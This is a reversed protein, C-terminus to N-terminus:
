IDKLQPKVRNFFLQFDSNRDSRALGPFGCNEFCIRLYNILTTENPENLFNSDVSPKKTLELAYPQGGSVNDKHLDDASLELFACGFNEDDVYQQIDEKWYEHSIEEWVSDLSAVQIPDAMEWMCEKDAEFDWVFNVGGVIRYFYQLSLPVFGFEKVADEVKKLLYETNELPPHCPKEFNYKCDKKFQYGVHILERHIVKLNYAVRNFTEELVNIIDSREHENLSELRIRSIDDYVATTEGNIYRDYFNMVTGTSRTKYIDILLILSHKYQPLTLSRNHCDNVAVKRMECRMRPIEERSVATKRTILSNKM